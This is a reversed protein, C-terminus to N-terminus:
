PSFDMNKIFEEQFGPTGSLPVYKTRAALRSAEEKAEESLLAVVAGDLAADGLPEGTKEYMNDDLIGIARLGEIPINSGFAGAVYVADIDSSGISAREMLINIGARIASKATQLSRIDGQTLEVTSDAGRYLTISNGKDGARVRTSLNSAIEGQDKIRGSNEIVGAKIFASVTSILGSGCIGRAAGGGIIQLSLTDGDIEVGSIAGKSATMGSAIEGGEFAPGAAASAAFLKEGRKLIIESNTGIDIALITKTKNTAPQQGDTEGLGLSLMVAVTDGGIFGGILPFAFLGAEPVSTIGIDGARVSRAEKFLPKYPVKSFKEVSLGLLIHEMVSNGAATIERIVGEEGFGRIIDDMAGSVAERQASLTGEGAANELTANVRAILDRGFRVQPNPKSLTNVRAGSSLDILAGVITTTGVDFAVGYGTKKLDM